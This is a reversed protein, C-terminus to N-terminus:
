PPVIRRRPNSDRRRRRAHPFSETGGCTCAALANRAQRHLPELRAAPQVEGRSAVRPGGVRVVRVNRRGAAADKRRVAVNSAAPVPEQGAMREAGEHQLREASIRLLQLNYYTAGPVSRWTLLPPRSITAGHRPTSLVPRAPVAVVAVGVSRLGAADYTVVVYRYEEGNVLGRDVFTTARGDYAVSSAGARDSRTVVYRSANTAARWELQLAGDLPRARLGAVNSPPVRAAPPTPPPTPQGPVPARLEITASAAGVNGAADVATFTITHVGLPLLPPMNSQFLAVGVLDAAFVVPSSNRSGRTRRRCCAHRHHRRRRAAPDRRTADHRSRRRRVVGHRLRRRQGHGHLDGDDNRAPLALGLRALLEARALRGASRDRDAGSHLQRELRDRRVGRGDAAGPRHDDARLEHRDRHVIGGFQEAGDTASCNVTTVGVPFTSGSVPACTM